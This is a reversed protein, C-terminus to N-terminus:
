GSSGISALLGRTSPSPLSRPSRASPDETHNVGADEPDEWILTVTDSAEPSAARSTTARILTVTMESGSAGSRGTRDDTSADDATSDHRSGSDLPAAISSYSTRPDCPKLWFHGAVV